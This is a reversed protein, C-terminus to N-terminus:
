YKKYFMLCSSQSVEPYEREYYRCLLSADRPQEEDSNGDDEVSPLQKAQPPSAM